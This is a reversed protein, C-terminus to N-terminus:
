EGLLDGASSLAVAAARLQKELLDAERRLWDEDRADIAARIGPLRMEAYGGGGALGFVLNQYFPTPDEGAQGRTLLPGVRRLAANIRAVTGAPLRGLDCTELAQRLAGARTAFAAQAEAIRDLTAACGPWDRGAERTAALESELIEAYRVHDLPLVDANALRLLLAATVAANAGHRRYDPDGFREMWDPTDYRSHYIGQRGGFGHSSVPLGLHLFFPAHDSGGGPVGPKLPKDASVREFISQDPHEPHPVVRTVDLLVEQLSPSASANFNRGTVVMDQNLYAVAHQRLADRNQEVWEASGIIGWEEADWTAFILTRRPRKGQRALEGCIRAAEVVISSGAVNDASGACWADRHGGVLIWEDPFETGDIRGFTNWVTRYQEDREIKLRAETPGPGLHYRFPLAGQWAQPVEDGGLDRLLEVAVDYSIPVSPIKPLDESEGPPLRRAGPVSAYGPTTPDGPAGFKVTGRQVGRPNRMPGDPYSDGKFYGDDRPDSYILCAVAGRQQVNRVKQGRYLNGYRALAVRGALDIGRAQLADLDEERGYNVYVVEGSADGAAAYGHSIPLPNAATTQDIGPLPPEDIELLLYGPATRELTVRTTFPLFIEFAAVDTALGAKAMEALVFDRTEAQAPTGAVHPRAALTRAVRAIGALDVMQCVQQELQRQDEARDTRYGRYDPEEALGPIALMATLAIRPLNRPLM